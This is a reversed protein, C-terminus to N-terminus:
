RHTFWKTSKIVECWSMHLNSVLVVMNYKISKYDYWICAGFNTELLSWSLSVIQKSRMYWHSLLAPSPLSELFMKEAKTPLCDPAFPRVFSVPLAIKPAASDSPKSWVKIGSLHTKSFHPRKVWHGVSKSGQRSLYHWYNSCNHYELVGRRGPGKTILSYWFFPVRAVAKSFYIKGRYFM